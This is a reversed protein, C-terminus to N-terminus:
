YQLDVFKIANPTLIIKWVEHIVDFTVQLMHRM